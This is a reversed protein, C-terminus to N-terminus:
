SSYGKLKSVGDPRPVDALSQVKEFIHPKVDEPLKDVQKRVSKSIILGYKM